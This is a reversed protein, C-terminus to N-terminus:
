IFIAQLAERKIDQASISKAPISVFDHDDRRSLLKFSHAQCLSHRTSRLTVRFICGSYNVNTIKSCGLYYM